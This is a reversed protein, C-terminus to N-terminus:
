TGDEHSADEGMRGASAYAPTPSRSEGWSDIIGDMVIVGTDCHHCPM